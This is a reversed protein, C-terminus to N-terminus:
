NSPLAQVWNYSGAPAIFFGQGVTVSPCNQPTGDDSQYWNNPPVPQTSDYLYVLYSQSPVDWTEVLSQDPLGNLNVGVSTGATVNTVAGAFPITSGCLYYTGSSSLATTNTGGIAVAVTGSFVNTIAGAPALFFGIGPPVTPLTTLPTGDDSQYWVYGTVPQTSDYLAVEYSQAGVNWTEVLSQDPLTAGFVENVGNSAGVQFPCELMYYTGSSTTPVNAYGVINQSYVQAQSSIVGAALAAVAILLTKTRM